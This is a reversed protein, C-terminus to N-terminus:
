LPKLIRTCSTLPLAFKSAIIYSKQIFSRTDPLPTNRPVCYEVHAERVTPKVNRRCQFRIVVSILYPKYESSALRSNGPSTEQLRGSQRSVLRAFNMQLINLARDFISFTSPMLVSLFTSINRTQFFYLHIANTRCLKRCIRHVPFSVIIHHRCHSSQSASLSCRLLDVHKSM